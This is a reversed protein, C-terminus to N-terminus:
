MELKTKESFSTKSVEEKLLEKVKQILEPSVLDEEFHDIEEHAAKIIENNLAIQSKFYKRFSKFPGKIKLNRIKEAARNEAKLKIRKKMLSIEDNLQQEEGASVSCVVKDLDHCHQSALSDFSLSLFLIYISLYCTKM